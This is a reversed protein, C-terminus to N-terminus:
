SDQSLELVLLMIWFFLYLAKALSPVHVLLPVQLMLFLSKLLQTCKVDLYNTKGAVSFGLQRCVVQADVTSWFDDCVTGWAGSM